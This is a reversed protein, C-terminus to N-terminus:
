LWYQFSKMRKESRVRKSNKKMKAEIERQRWKVDCAINFKETQKTGWILTIKATTYSETNM